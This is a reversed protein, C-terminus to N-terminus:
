PGQSELGEGEVREQIEGPAQVMQSFNGVWSQWILVAGIVCLLGGAGRLIRRYWALNLHRRGSAVMWALGLMVAIFCVMFSALFILGAAPGVYWRNLFLPGGLFFWFAWPGPSLLGFLVVRVLHGREPRGSGSLPDSRDADRFVKWAILLLVGGGVMGIWRLTGEPLRSLVLVAALMVPMETGLPVLAVRLGPGMGRELATAAVITSFAGPIMGAFLGLGVGLLLSEM